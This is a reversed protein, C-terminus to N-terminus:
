LGLASTSGTLFAYANASFAWEPCTRWEPSCYRLWGISTASIRVRSLSSTGEIIAPMSCSVTSSEDTFRSSIPLCNPSVTASNTSPTVFMPLITKLVLSSLCASFKLFITREMDFSILTIRILSASLSCLILVNCCWVVDFCCHIACSVM